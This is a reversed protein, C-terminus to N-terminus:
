WGKVYRRRNQANIQEALDDFREDGSQASLPSQAATEPKPMVALAKPKFADNSRSRPSPSIAMASLCRKLLLWRVPPKVFGLGKSKVIKHRLCVSSKFHLTQRNSPLLPRTTCALCLVVAFAAFYM